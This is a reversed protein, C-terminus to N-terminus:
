KYDEVILEILENVNEDNSIYYQYGGVERVLSFTKRLVDEKSRKNEVLYKVDDLESIVDDCFYYEDELDTVIRNFNDTFEVEKNRVSVQFSILGLGIISAIGLAVMGKNKKVRELIKM